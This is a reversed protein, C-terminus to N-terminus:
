PICEDIMCTKKEAHGPLSDLLELLRHVDRAKRCAPPHDLVAAAECERDDQWDRGPYTFPQDDPTGARGRGRKGSRWGPRPAHNGTTM